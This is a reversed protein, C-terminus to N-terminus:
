NEFVLQVRRGAVSVWDRYYHIQCRGILVWFQRWESPKAYVDRSDNSSMRAVLKKGNASSSEENTEDLQFQEIPLAVDTSRATNTIYATSLRWRADVAAKALPEIFDGHEMNAVELVAYM